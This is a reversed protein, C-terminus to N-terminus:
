YYSSAAKEQASAGSASQSAEYSECYSEGNIYQCQQRQYYVQEQQGAGTHPHGVVRASSEQDSECYQRGDPLTRCVQRTYTTQQHARTTPSDDQPAGITAASDASSSPASFWLQYALLASLLTPVLVLLLTWRPTSTTAKASHPSSSPSNEKTAPPTTHSAELVDHLNKAVNNEDDLDQKQKNQLAEQVIRQMETASEEALSAQLKGVHLSLSEDDDDDDMTAHDDNM